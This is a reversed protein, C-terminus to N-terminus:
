SFDKSGIALVFTDLWLAGKDMHIDLDHFQPTHSPYWLSM